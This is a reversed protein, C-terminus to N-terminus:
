LRPKELTEAMRIYDDAIKILKARAEPDKMAEAEARLEKARARYSDARTRPVSKGIKDGGGREFIRGAFHIALADIRPL